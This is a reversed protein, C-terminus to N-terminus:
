RFVPWFPSDFSQIKEAIKTSCTHKGKHWFAVKGNHLAREVQVQQLGSLLQTGHLAGKAQIKQLGSFIV